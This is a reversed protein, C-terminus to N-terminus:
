NCRRIVNFSEILIGIYEKGRGNDPLSYTMKTDFRRWIAQDLDKELNTAAIIISKDGFDDLCQPLTNVARAM